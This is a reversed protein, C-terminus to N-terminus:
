SSCSSVAWWRTGFPYTTQVYPCICLCLMCHMMQCPAPTCALGERGQLVPVLVLQLVHRGAHHGDDGGLARGAGGLPLDQGLAGGGWGSNGQEAAGPCRSPGATGATCAWARPRLVYICDFAAAAPCWAAQAALSPPAAKDMPRHRPDWRACCAGHGGVSTSCHLCPSPANYSAVQMQAPPRADQKRLWGQHRIEGQQMHGHVTEPGHWLAM